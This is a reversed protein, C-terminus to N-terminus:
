ITVKGEKRYFIYKGDVAQVGDGKVVYTENKDKNYAYLHGFYKIDRPTLDLFFDYFLDTGEALITGDEESNTHYLVIYDDKSNRLRNGLWLIAQTLNYWEGYHSFTFLSRIEKEEDGAYIDIPRDFYNQRM